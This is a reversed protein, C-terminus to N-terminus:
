KGNLRKGLEKAIIKRFAAGVTVCDDQSLIATLNQVLHGVRYAGHSQRGIQGHGAVAANARLAQWEAIKESPETMGLVLAHRGHHALPSGAEDPDEEFRHNLAVARCMAREVM